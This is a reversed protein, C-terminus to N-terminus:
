NLLTCFRYILAIRRGTPPVMSCPIRPVQVNRFLCGTLWVLCLVFVPMGPKDLKFEFAPNVQSELCPKFSCDQSPKPAHHMRESAQQDPKSCGAPMAGSFARWQLPMSCTASVLSSFWSVLLLFVLMQLYPGNRQSRLKTLM